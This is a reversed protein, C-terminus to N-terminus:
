GQALGSEQLHCLFKDYSTMHEWPIRRRFVRWTRSSGLKDHTQRM